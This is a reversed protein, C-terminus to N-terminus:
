LMNWNGVKMFRVQHKPTVHSPIGGPFSFHKFLQKMGEVDQAINHYYESYTGELYTVSLYNAARWYAHMKCLEEAALPPAKGLTAEVM